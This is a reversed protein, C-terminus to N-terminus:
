AGQDLIANNRKKSITIERITDCAPKEECSVCNLEECTVVGDEIWRLNKNNNSILTAAKIIQDFQSTIEPKNSILITDMKLIKPLADMYAKHLCQSLSYLSFNKSMLNKHIRIRIADYFSKTMYGPLSDTLNKKTQYKFNTSDADSKLELLVLMFFHSGSKPLNKFDDGAIYANGSVLGTKKTFLVKSSSENGIEVASDSKLVLNDSPTVKAGFGVHTCEKNDITQFKSFHKKHQELITWIKEILISHDNIAENM